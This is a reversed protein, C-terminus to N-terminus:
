LRRLIPTAITPQVRTASIEKTLKDSPLYVQYFLDLDLDDMIASPVSHIDFPLDKTRRKEALRREEEDTAIAKRPGVRVWVQGKYRVPPADLPEVIIVALDCGVLTKKQVTMMPFPLINGDSRIDALTRLLEDTITLNAFSGGDDAGIFIIGPQRHNPLDNAFACVAQRIKGREAMSAKREIRDSELDKLLAELAM